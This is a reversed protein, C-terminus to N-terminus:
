QPREQKQADAWAELEESWWMRGRSGSLIVPVPFDPRKAYAYLTDTDRRLLEAAERPRLLKGKNM